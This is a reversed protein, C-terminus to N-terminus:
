YTPWGGGGEGGARVNPGESFYFNPIRLITEQAGVIRLDRYISKCRITSLGEQIKLGGFDFGMIPSRGIMARIRFLGAGFCMIPSWFLLPPGVNNFFRMPRSSAAGFGACIYQLAASRM